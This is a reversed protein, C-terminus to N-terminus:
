ASIITARSLLFDIAKERRMGESLADIGNDRDLQARVATPTQELREAYVGIEKELDDESITLGERRIVEDLVMTGRITELAPKRQEERLNDWNINAKRPDVQQQALRTAVQELRRAVQQDVLAEPVEVTVRAALQSMLDRRVGRQSEIEAERRLDTEIREKLAALTDFDGVSQAFEDSVEPLRRLHIAKVRIDYAVATGALDAPEYDTPYSLEFKKSDGVNLGFLASDFGPPNTDAGIEITVGERRDKPPPAPGGEPGGIHWRALDVTVIDGTEISRDAIPELTSARLQLKDLSREIADADPAVPTRRLTLAEYDIGAISPMVEFLAHFTLPQGEDISVDRVDPTDIPILEQERLADEVAQPVLDDAVAHLIDQKFRQRVIHIPVKGPRFGPVKARRQHRQAIKDISADVQEPPIQVELRKRTESLTTIAAKM